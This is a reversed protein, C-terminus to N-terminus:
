GLVGKVQVLSWGLKACVDLALQNLLDPAHLAANWAALLADEAAVSLHAQFDEDSGADARYSHSLLCFHPRRLM